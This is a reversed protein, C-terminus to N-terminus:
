PEASVAPFRRNTPVLASVRFEAGVAGGAANFARGFVGGSGPNQGDSVWVVVFNGEADMTVAPEFQNGTVYQNVRFPAGRADGDAEYLRAFIGGESTDEGASRWVVVFAGGPSSAVASSNQFDTTHTNVRFESGLPAGAADFRQGFVGSESGDQLPSTWTVVFDGAVDAAVSPNSQNGPTYTNVRFSDGQAVGAADFRRAHIDHGLSGAGDGTWAVVFSGDAATAVAPGYQLGTTYENVRFEGGGLPTGDFRRAFIGYSSGDQGDSHWAVLFGDDGTRALVPKAQKGATEVNVRFELSGEPAGSADFRRAVVGFDNGDPGHSSWAVVFRGQADWTVTSDVQASTTYANVAFEDGLPIQSWAAVPLLGAALGAAIALAWVRSM